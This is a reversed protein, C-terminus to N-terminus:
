GPDLGDLTRLVVKGADVDVRDVYGDVLPIEYRGGRAVVVLLDVTPYTQLSEVFGVVEGDLVVEAGVVDCAYFEGEELPPFDARRVCLQAGRVEDAADRDDVGHLKVLLADNGPRVSDLSVEHAEGRRPGDVFRVLVEDVQGLLDSDESFPHARLEGRVGHARGVVALPVWDEPAPKRGVSAGTVAARSAAM